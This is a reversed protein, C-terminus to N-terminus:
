FVCTTGSTLTRKFSVAPMCDGEKTVVYSVASRGTGPVPAAARWTFGARRRRTSDCGPQARADSLESDV